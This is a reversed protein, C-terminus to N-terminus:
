RAVASAGCCTCVLGSIVSAFSRDHTSACASRVLGYARPVDILVTHRVDCTATHGEASTTFRHVVLSCQRSVSSMM